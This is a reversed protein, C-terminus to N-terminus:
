KYMKILKPYYKEISDIGISITDLIKKGELYKAYAAYNSQDRKRKNELKSWVIGFRKGLQAKGLVASGVISGYSSDENTIKFITTHKARNYAFYFANMKELDKKSIELKTRMHYLDNSCIGYMLLTFFLVRDLEQFDVNKSDINEAKLILKVLKETELKTTKLKNNLDM